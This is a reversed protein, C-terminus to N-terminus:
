SWVAWCIQLIKHDGKFLQMIYIIFNFILHQWTINFERALLHCLVSFEMEEKEIEAMNHLLM